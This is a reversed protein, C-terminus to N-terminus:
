PGSGEIGDPHMSWGPDNPEPEGEVPRTAPFWAVPVRLLCQGAQDLVEVHTGGVAQPDRSRDLRVRLRPPSTGDAPLFEAAVPSGAGSVRVRTLVDHEALAVEPVLRLEAETTPSDFIAGAPEARWRPEIRLYMPVRVEPRGPDDTHLVVEGRYYGPEPAVGSLVFARVAHSGEPEMPGAVTLMGIGTCEAELRSSEAVSEDQWRIWLRVEVPEGQFATIRYFEPLVEFTIDAEYRILCQGFQEREQDGERWRVRLRAAQVQPGAVPAVTAALTLNVMRGPALPGTEDLTADLCGCTKSVVCVQVPTDLTNVFRVVRRVLSGPTFTGRDEADGTIARLCRFQHETARVPPTSAPVDDEATSAPVDDEAPRTALTVPGDDRGKPAARGPAAAGARGVPKMAPMPLAENPPVRRNRFFDVFKRDSPLPIWFRHAPLDRNVALPAVIVVQPLDSQTLTEDPHLMPWYVLDDRGPIPGGRLLRGVAAPLEPVSQRVRSSFGLLELRRSWSRRDSELRDRLEPKDSVQWLSYCGLAGVVPIWIGEHKKYKVTEIAELPIDLDARHISMARPAYGHAPDARVEVRFPQGYIPVTARLGPWPQDQTPELFSLDTSAALLIHLPRRDQFDVYRGLLRLPTLEIALDNDPDRAMGEMLTPCMAFMREERGFGFFYSRLNGPHDPDGGSFVAYEGRSYWNGGRDVGAQRTSNLIWVGPSMPNYTAQDWELSRISRDYTELAALLAAVRGDHAAASPDMPPAGRAAGLLPPLAAMALGLAGIVILLYKRM